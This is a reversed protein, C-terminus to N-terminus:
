RSYPAQLSCFQRGGLSALMLFLPVDGATSLLSAAFTLASVAALSTSAAARALAFASEKALRALASFTSLVAVISGAKETVASLLSAFAQHFGTTFSNCDKPPLLSMALWPMRYIKMMPKTPPRSASTIGQMQGIMGIVTLKKRFRALFSLFFPIRSAMVYPKLITTM